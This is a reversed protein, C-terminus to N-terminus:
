LLRNGNVLPNILRKKIKKNEQIPIDRKLINEFLTLKDRLNKNESYEFLRFLQSDTLYYLSDYTLLEEEIALKIINALLEMM